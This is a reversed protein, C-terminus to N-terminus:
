LSLPIATLYRSATNSPSLDAAGHDDSDSDDHSGCSEREVSWRVGSQVDRWGCACQSVMLMVDESVINEEKTHRRFGNRM